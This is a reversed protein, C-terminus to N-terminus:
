KLIILKRTQVVDGAGSKADRGIASDLLRVQMRYLYVGSSLTRGDFKVEHYGAVEEGNQLVAVQQGLTNFVTLNVHASNPLGYRIVTSPNFPNPYNQMLEIERPIGEQSAVGTVTVLVPMSFESTSNLYNTATATIARGAGVPTGLAAHFSANGNADTHVTTTGLFTQGEGPRPPAVSPTAFFELTFTSNASSNLSGQVILSAGGQASILVPYNQLDNPGADWDGPDNATVGMSDETGGVLDIGLRTNAYISNGSVRNSIPYVSPSGEYLSVGGANFAIVNGAGAATDGITNDFASGKCDIGFSNGLPSVGDAQTGIRNGEIRNDRADPGNSAGYIIVGRKVNGSILNGNGASRGGILNGSGSVLIGNLSPLAKTGTTDTGIYNGQVTTSDSLIEISGLGWQSIVNRAGASTGGIVNRRASNTIVIGYDTNTLAETGTLTTGILNGAVVNGRARAGSIRIGSAQDLNGPVMRAIVNGAGAVSGGITNSAGDVIAVGNGVNTLLTAGTADVGIFNGRVANHDAGKRYIYVGDEANGSIVNRAAPDIGGITNYSVSDIFVGILNDHRTLGNKDTGLFNGEIVNGGAGDLLIAYGGCNQMVLGRVCSNGAHIHLGVDTNLYLDRTVTGDLVIQLVANCPKQLGNTNPSSGPQTYGDIVVPESIEPLGSAPVIVHPGPGPINFAITDKGAKANANLLAQRFSGPGSDLTTTVVETGAVLTIVIPDSFESTNGGQDTATATISQGVGMPMGITLAFPANGMPDTTVPAWGLFTRGDRSGPLPAPYTAFFELTFTSNPTSNLNGHISLYSGGMVSSLVPYNQLNNPGTDADGPDNATIGHIDETGGVLDIGIGGNAYIANRSICNGTSDWKIVIGKGSNFAIVNGAGEAPGGITNHGALDILVGAGQNGLPSTGDAQTGIRNGEVVNGHSMWNFIELGSGRNGSILNGEGKNLGGILNDFTYDIYVGTGNGLAKTGSVDTGIYNGQVTTNHTWVQVGYMGNGSIVNRAGAASGGVINGPSGINVGIGNNPLSDTGAANMGIFNGAIVNGTSVGGGIIDIGVGTVVGGSNDGCGSIVNGAGTDTGGITNSSANWITVGWSLNGLSGNGAANVGIYNGQVVNGSAGPNEIGIGSKNNGSIVNRAAATTGGITNNGVNEIYVAISNGHRVLGTNDTGLYNGEVTNGGKDELQIAIGSFSNIVLGRICSNGGGVEFGSSPSTPNQLATGDIVIQLVANDPDKFANTNPSSGPQTYGDILVPDTLKPLPTVPMITHVGPGSINFTITDKGVHANANLMAQRLSGPGSDATNIVVMTSSPPPPTVPDAVKQICGYIDLNTSGINRSDQWVVLAHESTTSAAVAPRQPDETGSTASIIVNSAPIREFVYNGRIHNVTTNNYPSEGPTERWAVYFKQSSPNYAAKPRWSEVQQDYSWHTAIASIPFAQDQIVDTTLYSLKAADVFGGWIGTWSQGSFNNNQDAWVVLFAPGTMSYSSQDGYAVDVNFEGGLPTGTKFPLERYKVGSHYPDSVVNIPAGNSDLMELVVGRGIVLLYRGYPTESSQVPAYAVGFAPEPPAFGHAREDVLLPSTLPQGDAGIKRSSVRINYYGSGTPYQVLVAGLFLYQGTISNYLLRGDSVGDMLTTPVGITTGTSSVRQGVYGSGPNFGVLYEHAASNYAVIPSLGYPYVTFSSGIMTGDEGVRQGRVWDLWITGNFIEESCVVLYEHDTGNYAVAPLWDKGSGQRVLFDAQAGSIVGILLFLAAYLSMRKM